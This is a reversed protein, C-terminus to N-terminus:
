RTLGLIGTLFPRARQGTGFEQLGGAQWHDVTLRLRSPAALPQGAVFLDAKQHSFAGEIQTGRARPVNVIVGVAPARELEVPQGTITELFRGGSRFRGFPTLEIAQARAPAASAVIVILTTRGLSQRVRPRAM